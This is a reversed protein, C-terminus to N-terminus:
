LIFGEQTQQADSVEFIYRSFLAELVETVDAVTIQHQTLREILYAKFSENQFKFDSSLFFRQDIGFDQAYELSGLQVSLVNAAKPTVTDGFGLDFGDEVKVIDLM